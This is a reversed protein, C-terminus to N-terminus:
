TREELPDLFHHFHECVNSRDHIALACFELKDALKTDKRRTSRFFICVKLRGEQAYFEFKDIIEHRKM